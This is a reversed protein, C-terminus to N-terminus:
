KKRRSAKAKGVKVKGMPFIDDDGPQWLTVTAPATVMAPATVVPAPAAGTAWGASPQPLEVPAVQAMLTPPAVPAPAASTLAAALAAALDDERAAPPEGPVWGDFARDLQSESSWEPARQAATPEHRVPAADPSSHDGYVDGLLNSLDSMGTGEDRVTTAKLAGRGAGQRSIVSKGGTGAQRVSWGGRRGRGRDANENRERVWASAMAPSLRTVSASAPESNKLMEGDAARPRTASDSRNVMAGNAITAGNRPGTM